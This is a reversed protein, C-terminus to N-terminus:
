VVSKRSRFLTHLSLTYIVIAAAQVPLKVPWPVFLGRLARRYWPAPGAATLVRDVFGVPARAPEVARLLSVTARFRQWDRRCEGCTELHTEVATGEAPPLAQDAHASFRDRVDECTM